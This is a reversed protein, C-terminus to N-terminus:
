HGGWETEVGDLWAAQTALRDPVTAYVHEVIEGPSVKPDAALRERLGVALAEAEEDLRAAQDDTLAGRGRLYAELRRLPDRDRWPEVDADTRYRHDDDANTHANLRYTHAEVLVPGGGARAADIAETVVATVAAADNGDVQVGRIGYGVGKLALNAARSQVSLPVSIAWGNNQVVFVVPANFVAAFNLAEHFDGESTGGDGVFAVVVTEDGRRRAAWALGAAHPLHTALPTCQPAVRYVSPDYGCHWEGRLLGLAETPEVGRVVISVTDRYTPFLWDQEAMALVPAVQCAEQGLSSPYVALRGQRTLATAEADFRRGIVMWRYAQWLADTEPVTYGHRHEEAAPSGDPAILCVPEEPPLPEATGRERDGGM